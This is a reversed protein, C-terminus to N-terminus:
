IYSRLHAVPDIRHTNRYLAIFVTQVIDDEAEHYGLLRRIFRRIPPELAAQLEGFADFSGARAQELLQCDLERSLTNAGVGRSVHPLRFMNLQSLM